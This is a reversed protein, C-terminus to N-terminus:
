LAKTSFSVACGCSTEAQPNQYDFRSGFTDEKWDITTGLIFLTSKQCISLKYGNKLDITDSFDPSNHVRTRTFAETRCEGRAHRKKLWAPPWPDSAITSLETWEYEVGSCGGSKVGFQLHTGRLKSISQLKKLASSTLKIMKIM